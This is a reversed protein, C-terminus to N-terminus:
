QPTDQHFRHALDDMAIRIITRDGRPSRLPATCQFLENILGRMAKMSLRTGAPIASRQAMSRALRKRAPAEDTPGGARYQEIVDGLITEEDGPRIDTPVGRIEVTDQQELSVDFGLARLHPLLEQVLEHDAPNLAVRHPFLLQQSLGFGNEMSALAREYLIREHAATQDVVMLGSHIQTLIYREHLQWLPTEDEDLDPTDTQQPVATSAIETQPVQEPHQAEADDVSWDYLRQSVDGPAEAPSPSADAWPRQPPASGGRGGGSGSGRPTDGSPSSGEAPPAFRDGEFSPRSAATDAGLAGTDPDDTTWDIMGLARRAVTKLMGYVGSEDDFKVEAKTPHVNVDVHQPDLRLFLAYFPYAGSPIMGEYAEKVAHDLYYHKVYRGNVFLFQEGRTRRHVSPDGIFGSVSLYSTEESVRVLHAKRDEGFLEGIRHRLQTPRGEERRAVLRYVENGNHMLRFSVEPNALSLFQFTEVLHKFETAPTKLFNRRAPVNYFLNRVAISTGSPVACPAEHTVDGGEVRLELGADDGVRKTKLEVQAVAAISALAEGRFGLTHLRDLDKASRIKSTAHRKFSARADAPGMGSGNDVVQVLASGSAKLIVEIDTAGADLANEVLEKLVSAPRQVVEGAAIKNALAEPM